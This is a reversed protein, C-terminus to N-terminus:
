QQIKMLGSPSAYRSIDLYGGKACEGDSCAHMGMSTTVHKDQFNIMYATSPGDASLVQGDLGMGPIIAPYAFIVMWKYLKGAADYLDTNATFYNERDLYLIRKGYCYGSSFDPLREMSVVYTDRVEWEGAGPSTFPIIGKGGFYYYRPDLEGATGCTDFSEPAAHVLTLIKRNGVYDIKFLQPLGPPGLDDEDFTFDSGFNPACRAAESWRLSRRFAPVYIYLEDLKTPDNPTLDLVAFYKAQEPETVESYKAFWYGGNGPVDRPFGPESLHTLQSYVVDYDASRTYDGYSDLTYSCSPAYQVRPAPRYFANWFLREGTLSAEGELPYAFPFGAVYGKPAYGGEVTRMLETQSGYKETDRLYHGPAPIPKTPGVDIEINKPMHWFYTGAFVAKMGETMFEQYKQWNAQTIKTGIPIGNEYGKESKWPAPQAQAIGTLRWLLLAAILLSIIRPPIHIETPAKTLM